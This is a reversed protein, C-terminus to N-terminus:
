PELSAMGAGNCARIRAAHRPDAPRPCPRGAMADEGTLNKETNRATETTPHTTKVYAGRVREAEAGASCRLVLVTPDRASALKPVRPRPTTPSSPAYPSDPM